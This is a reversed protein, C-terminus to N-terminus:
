QKQCAFWIGDSGEPQAVREYAKSVDINTFGSKRFLPLLDPLVMDELTQEYLRSDLGYEALRRRCVALM